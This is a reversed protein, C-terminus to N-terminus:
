RADWVCKNGITPARRRSVAAQACGTSRVDIRAPELDAPFPQEVYLIKAFISEHAARLRDLIEDVYAPETVTCNFDASLASVSHQEALEGVRVIRQYDWPADDGRLKIKLCTLGDRTIWDSLLLPYGDDPENGTLEDESLPDLGGVLHWAPLSRPAQAVLFDQPYLGAFSVQPDAPELYHGLDRSLYRANYTSYIDVGHLVGYADHVAIDFASACVLAALYPIELPPQGANGVSRAASERRLQPLVQRLFDHGIELPHGWADFNRWAAALQQCFDIMGQCRPAYDLPSPWAWQVSLPTEGWGTAQRGARDTVTCAVRACIVSTLTERGFKIPVRTQVPLLYLRIQVVRVDTPRTTNSSPM